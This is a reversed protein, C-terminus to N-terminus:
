EENDEGDGDKVEIRVENVRRATAKTVKVDLNKHKFGEGRLPIKEMMEMVWGGVTSSGFEERTEFDIAEFCKSLSEQGAVFFVNDGVKKVLLEVEDHEDYIEGVLEELIDEMTVIGATGGFEDIVIAMQSRAKQLERLAGSIKMSASVCIAKTVAEKVGHEKSLVYKNFDKENLIGIITDVSGHYVPLRSFEHKNFIKNIHELTDIDSVAIVNVRPIMIDYVDIDEFEIAAKILKLEDAVEIGESEAEEEAEEVITLLEDTTHAEHYKKPKYIKRWLGFFVIFPYLIIGWFIIFNYFFMAAREPHEKAISKPIIDCILLVVFTMVVTSILTSIAESPEGRANLVIGAFFVTALSAALITVINNGILTTNLVTDPNELKKLVKAAKKSGNNELMKLRIKNASMFSTESAAFCSSLLMLAVISAALVILITTPM